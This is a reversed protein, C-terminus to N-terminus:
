RMKYKKAIGQLRFLTFFFFPAVVVLGASFLLGLFSNSYLVNNLFNLTILAIVSITSLDYARQWKEAEKFYEPHKQRVHTKVSISLSERCIPCRPM